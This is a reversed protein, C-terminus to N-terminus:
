STENSINTRLRRCLVRIVSRAIRPYDEMASDFSEKDIKLLVTDELATASASRPEPDLIAMEGVVEGPGLEAFRRTEDHIAIRGERILYMCDGVEGQRIFTSRPPIDLEDAISAIHALIEDPIEAFFDTKRLAVVREVITLMPDEPEPCDLRLRYAAVLACNRLWPEPWRDGDTAIEVVRESPPMREISFLERYHATDPPNGTRRDAVAIISQKRWGSVLVDLLEEGLAREKQSGHIIRERMDAIEDPPYLFGLVLFVTELEEAYSREVAGEIAEAGPHRFLDAYATAYRACRQVTRDLAAEVAPRTTEDAQYDQQALAEFAARAPGPCGPSFAATLATRVTSDAMRGAARVIRMARETPMVDPETLLQQVLQATAGGLNTLAALAAGRTEPADVHAVVDPLLAPHAVAQAARLAATVVSPDSDRLLRRVPQYFSRVATSQLVRCAAVRQNPTSSRLLRNFTDGATLIGDIGGYLFLGTVAAEVLESDTDELFRTVEVSPEESLACVARLASKRVETPQEEDLQLRAVALGWRYGEEEIRRLVDARVHPHPHDVLQALHEAFHADNGQRLLDLGSTVQFPDTSHLLAEIAARTGADALNLQMGTLRRRALAHKLAAQYANLLKRGALATIATVGLTFYTVHITTVWPIATFALLGAGAVAYSIPIGVGQVVNHLARREDHALPQFASQISTKAFGSYVLYDVFRAVILLVFFTLGAEPGLLATVAAAGLIAATILPGGIAGAPMGFRLLIPSAMTLLFLFGVATTGSTVLGIFRGLAAEEPFFVSAESYVLYQVLLTAGSALVQYAFVVMSYPKRIVQRLNRLTAAPGREHRGHIRDERAPYEHSGNLLAPHAHTERPEQLESDGAPSSLAARAHWHHARTGRHSTTPSPTDVHHHEEPLLKGIRHVFALAAIMSIGGLLILPELAGFLSTLPGVAIGALVVALIEGATIRPYNQKIRRADFLEAAQAGRLMMCYLTGATQVVMLGYIIWPANTTALLLFLGIFAAAFSAITIASFRALSTREEGYEFLVTTAPVLLGVIVYVHRLGQSGFESVLLAYGVNYVLGLALGTAFAQGILLILARREVTHPGAGSRPRLRSIFGATGVADVGHGENM